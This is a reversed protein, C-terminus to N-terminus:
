RQNPRKRSSTGVGLCRTGVCNSSAICRTAFNEAGFEAAHGLEHFLNVVEVTPGAKAGFVYDRYGELKARWLLAPHNGVPLRALRERIVREVRGVQQETQWM